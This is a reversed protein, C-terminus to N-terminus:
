SAFEYGSRYEQLVSSLILGYSAYAKASAAIAGDEICISAMKAAIIGYLEPNTFYAPPDASVLLTLAARMELNTMEPQEQLTSIEGPQWLKQVEALEKQLADTFDKDTLEIGLLKLAQRAATLAKENKSMMTLM